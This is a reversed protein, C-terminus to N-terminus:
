RLSIDVGNSGEVLFAPLNFRGGFNQLLVEPELVDNDGRGVCHLSLNLRRARNLLKHM